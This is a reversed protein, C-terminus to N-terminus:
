LEKNGKNPKSLRTNAIDNEIEKNMAELESLAEGYSTQDYKYTENNYTDRFFIIILLVSFAGGIFGVICSFYDKSLILVLLLILLAPTCRMLIELEIKEKLFSDYVTFSEDRTRNEVQNVSNMDM